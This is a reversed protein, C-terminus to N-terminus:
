ALRALAEERSDCIDFLTLLKSIKLLDAINKPVNCLILRMRKTGTETRTRVLEGLGSSNIYSVGALDLVLAHITDRKELADLVYERLDNPIDRDPALKGELTLVMVGNVFEMEIKLM